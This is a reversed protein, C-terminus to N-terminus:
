GHSISSNDDGMVQELQTLYPQTAARQGLDSGARWMQQSQYADSFRILAPVAVGAASGHPGNAQRSVFLPAQRSYGPTAVNAINQSTTNLGAQAAQTGSLAINLLSM